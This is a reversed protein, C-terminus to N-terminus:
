QPEDPAGLVSRPLRTAGWAEIYLLGLYLAVRQRATAAKALLERAQHVSEHPWGSLQAEISELETSTRWPWGLAKELDDAQEDQLTAGLDHAFQNRIRNALM